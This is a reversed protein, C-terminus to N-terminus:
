LIVDFSNGIIELTIPPGELSQMTKMAEYFPSNLMPHKQFRCIFHLGGNLYAEFPILSSIGHWM